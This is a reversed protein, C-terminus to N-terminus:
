PRPPPTTPEVRAPLLEFEVFQSDLIENSAGEHDVTFRYRGEPFGTTDLAHRFRQAADRSIAEDCDVSTGGDAYQPGRRANSQPRVAIEPDAGLREIWHQVSGLTHTGPRTLSEPALAVGSTVNAIEYHFALEDGARAAGASAQLDRLRFARLPQAPDQRTRAARAGLEGPLTADPPPPWPVPVAAVLREEDAGWASTPTARYVAIQERNSAVLLSGDSSFRAIWVVTFPPTLRSLLVGTATEWVGVTGDWSGTVIRRGDPSFSVDWIVDTHGKIAFRPEFSGVDWTRLVGDTGVGALLSSDPTFAVDVLPADLSGALRGESVDWIQTPAYHTAAVVYRGDPSFVPQWMTNPNPGLSRTSGDSLDTVHLLKRDQNVRAYYRGDMSVESSFAGEVWAAALARSDPQGTSASLYAASEPAEPETVVRLADVALNLTVSAGRPPAFEDVLRREAPDWWQWRDDTTRALLREDAAVSWFSALASDGRETTRERGDALDAIRLGEGDTNRRVLFRLGRTLRADSPSQLDLMEVQRAVDWLKLEYAWYTGTALVSADPSWAVSRIGSTHGRVTGLPLANPLGADDALRWLRCTRDWSGSALLTGDRSFALCFVCGLHGHLVRAVKGTAADWLRVEGPDGYAGCSSALTRGDPSFALAWVYGNGADWRQLAEGTTLDWTHIAGQSTGTAVVKGEPAIAVSVVGAGPHLLVPGPAGTLADWVYTTGDSDPVVNLFRDFPGQYSEGLKATAAAVTHGDDSFAVGLVPDLGQGLEHLVTREAVNWLVVQGPTGRTGGGGLLWRGDPSFALSTLEGGPGPLADIRQRTAPDWLTASGGHTVALVRGDPSFEVDHVRGFSAQELPPGQRHCADWWHYWEWGRLDRQGSPLYGRLLRLAETVDGAEVARQTAQMEAVYLSHRIEEESLEARRTQRGAEAAAHEAIKTQENARRVAAQEKQLAERESQLAANADDASRRAAARLGGERVAVVPGGVALGFVILAIAAVLAAAVPKRRTWRWAREVQGIPRARIPEGRLYRDLEEALEACSHYRRSPEKALCRLCITELDRPITRDLKRPPAPEQSAIAALLDLDSGHFPRRGTLLEYLVVGLSWLDSRGDALHSQGGAQEPSMYAPTGMRAGEQTRLAEGEYRRALGFDLVHPNDGEDLMVNGPKVDRHIVGQQHAYELAGALQSILQAATRPPIRGRARLDEHLTQGRVYGSAIYCLGDIQGADYVPVIHPHRLRGAARAERLFRDIDRNDQLAGSRPLKIAVERDLQPDHARYVAGFGGRGVEELLEFRGFQRPLPLAPGVAAAAPLFSYTPTEGAALPTDRQSLSVSQGCQPCSTTADVSADALFSHGAPCVLDFRM